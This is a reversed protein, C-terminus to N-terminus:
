PADIPSKGSSVGGPMSTDSISKKHGNPKIVTATLSSSVTQNTYAQHHSSATQNARQPKINIQSTTVAEKLPEVLSSNGKAGYVQTNYINNKDDSHAM